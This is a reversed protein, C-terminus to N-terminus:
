IYTDGKGKASSAPVHHLAPAQSGGPVSHLYGAEQVPWHRQSHGQGVRLAEGRLHDGAQGGGAGVGGQDGGEGASRVSTGAVASILCLCGHFLM